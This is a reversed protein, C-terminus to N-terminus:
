LYKNRIIEEMEEMEKREEMEELEKRKLYSSEYRLMNREEELKKLKFVNNIFDQKEIESSFGQIPIGHTKRNPINYGHTSIPVIRNKKFYYYLSVIFAILFLIGIITIPIIWIYNEFQTDKEKKEKIM